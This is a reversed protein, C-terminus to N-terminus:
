LIAFVSQVVIAGVIVKGIHGGSLEVLRIELSQGMIAM